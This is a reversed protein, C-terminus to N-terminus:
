RGECDLVPLEEHQESRRAAALGRCQPHHGPQLKRGTALDKDIALFHAHLGGTLAIDGEDELHKREVRVHIDALVNGIRQDALAHGACLHLLLDALDGLDEPDGINEIARHTPQRPAVALPHRQPTGNDTVQFIVDAFVGAQEFTPTWSFTATEEDFLAGEFAVAFIILAFEGSQALLLAIALANRGKHGFLMVLPWLLTIKALMLILVLGISLLPEKLLITLDLSMGMSMFFLGILLGRFPQVEAVVQHRFESNAILLGAVFAGMAMSLGIRTMLVATGLVLLVTFATFMEPSNLLAVRQLMPQLLFRGGFIILALIALAEILVLGFDQGITLDTVTLLSAMTLLPVVALDQFL